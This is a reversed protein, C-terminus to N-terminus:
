KPCLYYGPAALLLTVIGELAAGQLGGGELLVRLGQCLLVGLGAATMFELWRSGLGLKRVWGATIGAGAFGLTLGWGAPSFVGDWVLGWALALGLRGREERMACLLILPFLPTIGWLQASILALELTVALWLGRLLWKLPERM